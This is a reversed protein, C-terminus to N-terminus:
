FLCKNNIYACSILFPKKYSNLMEKLPLQPPNKQKKYEPSEDLIYRTYICILGMVLSFIFPLRWESSELDSVKKCILVAILSLISGLIASLVEISGFFEKKDKPAHEILFPANGAKGGLSIGQLLRLCIVLISALIGINQYGPVFAILLTSLTMLVISLLLEVRKGYKDGIHGFIAAGTPRM